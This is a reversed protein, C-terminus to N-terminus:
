KDTNKWYLMYNDRNKKILFNANENSFYVPIKNDIYFDIKLPQPDILKEKKYKNIIKHVIQGKYIFLLLRQNQKIDGQYDTKTLFSIDDEKLIEPFHNESIIYFKDWKFPLKKLDVYCDGHKNCIEYKRIIFTDFEDSQHNNCQLLCMISLFVFFIGKLFRLYSM